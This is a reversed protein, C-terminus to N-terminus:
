EYYSHGYRRGNELYQCKFSSFPKNEWGETTQRGPRPFGTLIKPHFKGRLYWLIPSGYPSFQMIRDEVAEVSGGTHCVSLCVFPRSVIAYLASLM